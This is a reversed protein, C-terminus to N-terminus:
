SNASPILSWVGASENRQAEEPGGQPGQSLYRAAESGWLPRFSYVCVLRLRTSAAYAAFREPSVCLKEATALIQRHAILYRRRTLRNQLRRLELHVDLNALDLAPEARSSEDFDLLGPVSNGDTGLVQKDHLDGHAWGAPDPRSSLLKSIAAESQARLGARAGAAEPIDESHNLWQNTWYRLTEAEVEPPHPPLRDLVGYYAASRSAALAAVWAQSWELWKAAFYADTVATHDQGLEYYSRGSLSSFVVVSPGTRLIRPTDFFGEALPATANTHREAVRAAWDKRLVKIYQDSTRVVARNHAHVVVEGKPAEVALSPLKPDHRPVTDFVGQRLHGARVGPASPTCVELIYNGPAAEPWARRVQWVAGAADTVHLPIDPYWSM